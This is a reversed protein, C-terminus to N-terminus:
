IAWQDTYDTHFKAQVHIMTRILDFSAQIDCDGNPNDIKSPKEINDASCRKLYLGILREFKDPNLRNRVLDFINKSCVNLIDYTLNIPRYKYYNKIKKYEAFHFAESM